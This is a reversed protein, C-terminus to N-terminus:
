HCWRSDFGRGEPAEVVAGGRVGLCCFLSIKIYVEGTFSKYSIHFILSHHLFLTPQRCYVAQLCYFIYRVEGGSGLCLPTGLTPNRLHDSSQM